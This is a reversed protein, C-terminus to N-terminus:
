RNQKILIILEEIPITKKRDRHVMSHCNPCLPVLDTEPNVKEPADFQSVPKIHHIHIFDKGHSGYFKEFNFGCGKCDYGHIQLAQKRLKPNREYVTVYKRTKDGEYYSEFEYNEGTEQSLDIEVKDPKIDTLGEALNTIRQYIEGNIKRVGDRWYNSARSAPIYELYENEYKIFVPNLFEQFNEILAFKDGKSSEKDDYIKGIEAIGFYYPSDSKRADKFAKNKLSGKYYIVKTGESLISLYRKPFHYIVGTKDDWISEDNEAIISYTNQIM